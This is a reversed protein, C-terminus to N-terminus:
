GERAIVTKRTFARFLDKGQLSFIEVAHAIQTGNDFLIADSVENEKPAGSVPDAELALVPRRDIGFLDDALVIADPIGAYDTNGLGFAALVIGQVDDLDFIG